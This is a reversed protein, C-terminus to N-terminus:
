GAAFALAARLLDRALPDSLLSEPRILFCVSRDAARALVLPAGAEDRLWPTWETAATGRDRAADAMVGDLALTAYRMAVFARTAGGPAGAVPLCTVLRGHQPPTARVPLGADRLLRAAADGLAVLRGRRASSAQARVFANDGGVLVAPAAAPDLVLGFGRLTEAVAAGFPDGGDLLAVAEPLVGLPSGPSAPGGAVSQQLDDAVALGLARWLSVAKIRTEFEERAPDSEALLDGGTRVEAVGDRVVAARLMTGVRAGGSARVELVLGGYWGRPGAEHAAIAALAAARPTGTLMVPAATAVIADWADVGERLRGHLRDVAHVVTALTMPRRRDLLQLSGPECLPALDNRLADSCVALSAADVEENFLLRLAEAEGVPGHGRAVTGCVPLSEVERGNVVLQLDPSAGFVCEGDGTDLMFTAPAPNVASLEAFARAPSRAGLRRRFSQSLTLSVLGSSALQALARAVVQAYGGPPFDDHAADLMAPAGPAGSRLAPRPAAQAEALAEDAFLLSAHQWAGAADRQLTRPSFFLVGLPAMDDSAAVPAALRHAEFRLAGALIADDGADDGNGFHSLFARLSAIAGAGGGRKSARRWAALAAHELLAVGFADLAEIELGDAHVRLALSPDVLLLAARPHM